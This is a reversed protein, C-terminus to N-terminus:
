KIEFASPFVFQWSTSDSNVWVGEGIALPVDPIPNGDDDVGGLFGLDNMWGTKRVPIQPDAEEDEAEIWDAWQWMIATGGEDEVTKGNGDLKMASISGEFSDNINELTYGTIFTKSLTINMPCPNACFKSGNELLTIPVAQDYVQGSCQVKWSASDSNIWVAEGMALPVDPIPNGDDDVGGLFGLDNMWGTKRVPVQPDAEEDEAEIWDAWQWMIATGGEDEVTKGNGDLKMASISGEFSDNINELTYGTISIDTLMTGGATGSIGIFNIGVAKSGNELLDSSAYGVINLLTSNSPFVPSEYKRFASKTGYLATPPPRRPTQVSRPSFTPRVTIKM